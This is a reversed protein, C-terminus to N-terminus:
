IKWGPMHFPIYAPPGYLDLADNDLKALLEWASIVRSSAHLEAIAYVLDALRHPVSLPLRGEETDGGLVYFISRATMAVDMNTMSGREFSKYFKLDKERIMPDFASDVKRSQSWSVFTVAHDRPHVLIHRPLLAGHIFGAEHLWGLVELQRKWLWIAHRPDIGDPYFERVDELTHHFGSKWRCVLTDDNHDVIQPIVRSFFYSGNANKEEALRSLQYGQYRLPPEGKRRIKLTVLESIAESADTYRRGRYVDSRDGEAIMTLYRYCRGNVYHQTKM